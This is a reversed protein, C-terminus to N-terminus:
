NIWYWIRWILMVLALHSDTLLVVISIRPTLPNSPGYFVCFQETKM